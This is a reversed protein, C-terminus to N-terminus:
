SCNCFGNPHKEKSPYSFKTWEAEGIRVLGKTQENGMGLPWAVWRGGDKQGGVASGTLLWVRDGQNNCHQTNPATEGSFVIPAWPLCVTEVAEQPVESLLHAPSM